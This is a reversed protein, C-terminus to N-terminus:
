KHKWKRLSDGLVYLLFIVKAPVKYATRAAALMCELVATSIPSPGPLKGAVGGLAELLHAQDELQEALKQICALVATRMENSGATGATSVM